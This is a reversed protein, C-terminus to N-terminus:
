PLEIPHLLAWKAKLNVTPPSECNPLKPKKQSSPVGPLPLVSDADSQCGYFEDMFNWSSSSSSSSDSVYAFPCPDNPVERSVKTTEVLAPADPGKESKVENLESEPEGVTGLYSDVPQAFLQCLEELMDEYTNVYCKWYAIRFVDHRERLFKLVYKEWGFDIKGDHCKVVEDLSDSIAFKNEPNSHFRGKKVHDLLKHVFITEWRKPGSLVTSCTDNTTTGM